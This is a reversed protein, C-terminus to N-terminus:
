ILLSHQALYLAVGPRLCSLAVYRSLLKLSASDFCLPVEGRIVYLLILHGESKEEARTEQTKKSEETPLGSDTHQISSEKSALRNGSLSSYISSLTLAGNSFLLLLSITVFLRLVYVRKSSTKM